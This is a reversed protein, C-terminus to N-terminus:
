RRIRALRGSTSGFLSLGGLLFAVGALVYWVTPPSGTRALVAPDAVAPAPAPAPTVVVGGVQPPPTQPVVPTPYTNTAVVSVSTSTVTFTVSNATTSVTTGGTVAFTTTTAGNAATETITCDDGQVVDDAVLKPSENPAVNVPTTETGSECGVTFTFQTTAAPATSGTTVKDLTVDGTAPTVVRYCIFWHSIAPIVEGGNLPARLDQFPADEPGYVNYANGGKVIVGDIVVNPNLITVDLFQGDAVGSVNADSADGDSNAGVQTSGPFSVADQEDVACTTANDSQVTTARPDETAEAASPGATLGVFASVSGLAVLAITPIRTRM